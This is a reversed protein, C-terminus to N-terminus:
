QALVRTLEARYRASDSRALLRRALTRAEGTRGDAALASARLVACELALQGEPFRREYDDLLALALGTREAALDARARDLQKVEEILGESSSPKASVSTDAVVPAASAIPKIKPRVARGASPSRTPESEL